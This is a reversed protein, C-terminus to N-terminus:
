VDTAWKFEAARRDLRNYIAELDTGGSAFSRFSHDASPNPPVRSHQNAALIIFNTGNAVIASKALEILMETWKQRLGFHQADAVHRHTCVASLSLTGSLLQKLSVFVLALPTM